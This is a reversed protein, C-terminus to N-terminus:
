LDALGDSSGTYIKLWDQYPYSKSWTAWNDRYAQFEDPAVRHLQASNRVRAPFRLGDLHDIEHQLIRAQFPNASRYIIPQGSEDLAEVTVSDARFVAGCIEGTSYCGERDLVENASAEVIRPNVFFKLDPEFNPTAPNAAIDILIIRFLEGLQPAALGVLSRKEPHADDREGVAIRRMDALVNQMVTSSLEAIAVERSRLNLRRNTPTLLESM